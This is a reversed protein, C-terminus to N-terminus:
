HLKIVVEDAEHAISSISRDNSRALNLIVPNIPPKQAQAVKPKAAQKPKVVAKPKPIAPNVPLTHLNQTSLGSSVSRTKLSSSLDSESIGSFWEPQEGGSERITDLSSILDARRQQSSRELRDAVQQSLPSSDELMDDYPMTNYDPVPKPISGISILRDSGDQDSSFKSTGPPIIMLDKVAWGRSDITLALAELRDKVEDQSLGNTLPREEKKPVTITVLDKM